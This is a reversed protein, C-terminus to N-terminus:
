VRAFSYSKVRNYTKNSENYDEDYFYSGDQSGGREDGLSGAASAQHSEFLMSIQEEHEEHQARFNQRLVAPPEVQMKELKKWNIDAFFPEEMIQDLTPRKSPNKHLMRKLCRKASQSLYKPIKLKGKEINQYLIRINDNYFPPLGVLMEYLVVGVQYIDAAKTVGKKKLM